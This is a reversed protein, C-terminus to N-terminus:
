REAEVIARGITESVMPVVSNGLAALRDLRDPIGNSAGRFLPEPGGRELWRIWGDVDGPRPPWEHARPGEGRRSADDGLAGHDHVRAAGLEVRGDGDGDALSAGRDRASAVGEDGGRGEVRAAGEARAVDRAGRRREADRGRADAVRTGIGREAMAREIAARWRDLTAGDRHAIVFLRERRHPAGVDSARLDLWEADFGRAALDALVVGLGRTRLGPVNEFVGWEPRLEDLIRACEPWLWREDDTGRRLGAVSFPQCPFGGCVVRVPETTGRKVERVDRYIPVGPWHKRLISRAFPDVEAQWRVPGLGARELGLELGGIGSFLSGITM